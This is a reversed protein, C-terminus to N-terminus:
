AGKLYERFYFKLTGYIFLGALHKPVFEFGLNYRTKFAFISALFSKPNLDTRYKHNLIDEYSGSEVMLIMKAKVAMARSFENEFRERNQALNGSIEELSAKREIAIKFEFPKADEGLRSMEPFEFSYDGFKLGRVVYKINNKKFYEIIHSNENERTDCIIVMENLYEQIHKDTM